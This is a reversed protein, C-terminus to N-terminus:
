LPFLHLVKLHTNNVAILHLYEEFENQDWVICSVKLKEVRPNLQLLATFMEHNIEDITLFRITLDALLPLDEVAFKLSPSFEMYDIMKFESLAKAIPEFSIYEPDSSSNFVVSSLTDTHVALESLVAMFIDSEEVPLFSVDIDKIRYLKLRNVALLFSHYECLNDMSQNLSAIDSELGDHKNRDYQKKLKRGARRVTKIHDDEFSFM